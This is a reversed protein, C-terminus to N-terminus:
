NILIIKIMKLQHFVENRGWINGEHLLTTCYIYLCKQTILFNLFAWLSTLFSCFTFPGHCWLSCSYILTCVSGQVCINSVKHWSVWTHRLPFKITQWCCEVCVQVRVIWASHVAKVSFCGCMCTHAYGGFASLDSSNSESESLHIRFYCYFSVLQSM